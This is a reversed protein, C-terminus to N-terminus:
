NLTHQVSAITSKWLHYICINDRTSQLRVKKRTNLAQESGSGSPSAVVGWDKGVSGEGVKAKVGVPSGEWDGVGKSSVAERVGVIVAVGVCLGAGVCLAAGVGVCVRVEM